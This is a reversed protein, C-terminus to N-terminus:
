KGEPQTSGEAVTTAGVAAIAVVVAAGAGVVVVLLSAASRQRRRAGARTSQLHRSRGAHAAPAADVLLRVLIVASLDMENRIHLQRQHGEGVLVVYLLRQGLATEGLYQQAPMSGGIRQHHQLRHVGLQGRDLLELLLEVVVVLQRMVMVYQACIRHSELCHVVVHEGHLVGGVAIQGGVDSGVAQVLVGALQDRLLQAGGEAEHVGLIQHMAVQLDLVDQDERRVKRAHLQAVKPGGRLLTQQHVLHLVRPGAAHRRLLQLQDLVFAELAQGDAIGPLKADQQVVDEGAIRWPLRGIPHLVLEIGVEHLVLLALGGFHRVIEPAERRPQHATESLIQAVIGLVAALDGLHGLIHLVAPHLTADGGGLRGGEDRGGIVVLVGADVEVLPLTTEGPILVLQAELPHHGGVTQIYGDVLRHHPPPYPVPEGGAVGVKIRVHLTQVCQIQQLLNLYIELLSIGGLLRLVYIDKSVIKAKEM